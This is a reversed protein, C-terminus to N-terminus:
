KEACREGYKYGREWAEWFAKTECNHWGTVYGFFASIIAAPLVIGFIVIIETM